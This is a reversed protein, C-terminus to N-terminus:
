ARPQLQLRSYRHLFAMSAADGPIMQQGLVGVTSREM